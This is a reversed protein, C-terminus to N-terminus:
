LGEILMKKLWDLKSDINKKMVEFDAKQRALEEELSQVKQEKLDIKKLREQFSDKEKELSERLAFIEKKLRRYEFIEQQVVPILEKGQPTQAWIEQLKKEEIELEEERERIIQEKVRLQKTIQLDQKPSESPFNQLRRNTPTNLESVNLKSTSVELKRLPSIRISAPLPHHPLKIHKLSSESHNSALSNKSKTSDYSNDIPKDLRNLNNRIASSTRENKQLANLSKLNLLSSKVRTMNTQISELNEPVRSTKYETELQKLKNELCKIDKVVNNPSVPPMQSNVKKLVPSPSGCKSDEILQLVENIYEIKKNFFLEENYKQAEFDEILYELNERDKVNKVTQESIRKSLRKLDTEKETLQKMKEFYNAKKSQIEALHWEIEKQKIEEDAKFKGLSFDRMEVLFKSRFEEQSAKVFYIDSAMEAFSQTMEGEVISFYDDYFAKENEEHKLFKRSNQNSFTEFIAKKSVFPSDNAKLKIDLKLGGFYIKGYIASETEILKIFKELDARFNYLESLRCEIYQSVQESTLNLRSKKLESQNTGQFKSPIQTKAKDRIFKNPASLVSLYDELKMSLRELNLQAENPSLTNQGPYDVSREFEFRNSHSIGSYNGHGIDINRIELSLTDNNQSYISSDRDM